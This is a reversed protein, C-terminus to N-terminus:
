IGKCFRVGGGGGACKTLHSHLASSMRSDSASSARSSALVAKPNFESQETEPTLHHGSLARVGAECRSVGWVGTTRVLRSTSQLTAIATHLKAVPLCRGSKIFRALRVVSCICRAQHDPGSSFSIVQSPCHPEYINLILM